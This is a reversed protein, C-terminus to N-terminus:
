DNSDKQRILDLAVVGGIVAARLQAPTEHEFLVSYTSRGLLANGIGSWQRTVTAVTTGGLQFEFNFEFVNGHLEIVSGDALEMDVRRRFVAFRKRVHALEQGDPGSLEYTDRVFNMPDEVSVVLQGNTDYVNLSRTGAVLRRAVSGTSEAYGVKDGDPNAIDFNNSMMSSIQQMVLVPEDLLGAPAPSPGGHPHPQNPDQPTTM